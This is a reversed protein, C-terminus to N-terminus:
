ILLSCMSNYLHSIIRYLRYWGEDSDLKKLSMMLLAITVIAVIAVAVLIALKVVKNDM